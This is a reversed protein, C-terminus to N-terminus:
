KQYTLFQYKLHKSNLLEGESCIQFQNAYEPFYCDVDHQQHILTIYLKKVAQHTIMTNYLQAGGICFFQEVRNQNLLSKYEDLAQDISNVTIVNDHFFCKQSTLVMNIRNPLPRYREPISEYTKRGYFLTKSKQTMQIAQLLRLILWIRLTIGSLNIIKVLVEIRDHAVIISINNM